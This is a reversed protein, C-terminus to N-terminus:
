AVYEVYQDNKKVCRYERHDDTVIIYRVDPSEYPKYARRIYGEKKLGDKTTFEIM